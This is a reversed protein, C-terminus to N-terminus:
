AVGALDWIDRQSTRSGRAAADLFGILRDVQFRPPGFRLFTGDASDCGMAVARCIRKASNVRGMHVWRGDAKAEDVLRATENSLKYTDDGGIFLVHADSPVQRRLSTCGNQLAFAPEFCWARIKDSWRNWLTLTGNHDSVVDPCTAFLATDPNPLRWLYREWAAFDFPKGAMWWGFAANDAAWVRHATDNIMACRPQTMLGRDTPSDDMAARWPDNVVGSLYIM